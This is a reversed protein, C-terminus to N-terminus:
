FFFAKEGLKLLILVIALYLRFFSIKCVRPKWFFLNLAWFWLLVRSGAALLSCIKSLRFSFLLFINNLLVTWYSWNMLKWLSHLPFFLPSFIMGKIRKELTLWWFREGRVLIPVSVLLNEFYVSSSLYFCESIQPM